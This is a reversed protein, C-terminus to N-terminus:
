INKTYLQLSKTTTWSWSKQCSLERFANSSKELTTVQSRTNYKSFWELVITLLHCDPKHHKQRGVCKVAKDQMTLCNKYRQTSIMSELRSALITMQEQAWPLSEAIPIEWPPSLLFLHRSLTLTPAYCAAYSLDM